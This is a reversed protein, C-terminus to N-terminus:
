DTRGSSSGTYEVAKGTSGAIEGMDTLAGADYDLVAALLEAGLPAGVASGGGGQEVVCAVM